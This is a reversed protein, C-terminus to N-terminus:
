YEEEWDGYYDEIFEKWRMSIFMSIKYIALYLPMPCEELTLVRIKKKRFKM